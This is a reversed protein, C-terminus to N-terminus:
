RARSGAARPWSSSQVARARQAATSKALPSASAHQAAHAAPRRADDPAHETSVSTSLAHSGGGRAFVSIGSKTGSAGTAGATLSTVECLAPSM